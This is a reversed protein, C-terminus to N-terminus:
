ANINEEMLMQNYEVLWNKHILLIEGDLYYILNADYNKIVEYYKSLNKIKEKWTIDKLDKIVKWGKRFDEIAEKKDVKEDIFNAISRLFLFAPNDPRDVLLRDCAGRIHSSTDHNLPLGQIFNWVWDITNDRLYPRFNQTYKSDFYTNVYTDFKEGSQIATEMVHIAEERKQAIREYVFDILQYCCKHLITEGVTEIIKNRVSRSAEPTDYRSIYETLKNIYYEDTHKKAVTSITKSNYDVTYDEIIGIVSLRYIARYTEQEVRVEMFWNKIKEAQDPSLRITKKTEKWFEIELNRIFEDPDQCYDYAEYIMKGKWSKNIDRLSKTIKEIRDNTFPILISAIQENKILSLIKTIGANQKEEFPFIIGNLLEDMIKKEKDEGPFSNHFFSLMLSKDISILGDHNSKIKQPSYLIYCYSQTNDRGARGAEQYFSEISQPMSFHITFRINPKDIGMGFAKTAVLLGLKDFKFKNQIKELDIHNDDEQKGAYVDILDSIQPFNKKIENAVDHVGFNNSVHPCFVIGNNISELERSFFEDLTNINQTKEWELSPIKSIIDLLSIIKAKAIDERVKIKKPENQYLIEEIKEIKFKLNEREMKELKIISSEGQINLERQVDSLVDFSATGTLGILPIQETLTQCYKRVNDGLRLYSTRFDHGWESVCHAEDVVCYSFYIGKMRKLYSRFEKIQLREPSVFVFQYYGKMMQQSALTREDPNLTSNIFITSDIELARLNQDQDHMLSKLPDIILVIGPQLIASLQYTLSKGAGTPLLAIVSDLQLTKRLIDVQGDLFKVKRFINNLFFILAKQQKDNPIDYRIPKACQIVRTDKKSHASRIKILPTASKPFDVYPYDCGTRQLVSVDIIVDFEGSNKVQDINKIERGHNLVCDKFSDTSFIELEIKPLKKGKNELEYINIFATKLDDIALQACPVDREIIAIKWSESKFDLLSNQILFLITKEIRAVGIPTLAAVMAKIGQSKEWLPKEYNQKIKEVYPHKLFKKILEKETEPILNIKNTPIRVTEAWKTESIAKDRQNDLTLQPEKTHQFGDIEIALGKRGNNASPFELFFDVRQKEFDNIRSGLEKKLYPNKSAETKLISNIERQPEILQCLAPHFEKPLTKQFFIEEFQSAPHPEWSQFNVSPLFNNGIRPDIVFFSQFILEKMERLEQTGEFRIEKGKPGFDKKALQLKTAIEEEVDVPALTPLGRSIYNSLVSTISEITPKLDFDYEVDFCCLQDLLDPINIETKIESLIKRTISLIFGAHLQSIM